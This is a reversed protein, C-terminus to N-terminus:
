ALEDHDANRLWPPSQNLCIYCFVDEWLGSAAELIYSTGLRQLNGVRKWALGHSRKVVVFPIHVSYKDHLNYGQVEHHELSNIGAYQEETIDFLMSVEDGVHAESFDPYREGDVVSFTCNFTSGRLDRYKRERIYITAM